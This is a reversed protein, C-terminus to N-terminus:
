IHILSLNWAVQVRDWRKDRDMAYYRGMVTAIKGVGIERCTEVTRAVLDAGSTPSVDRGDLFCHIYVKDLGQEKAMQVLAFLHSIHSHVGGNSMLGMIHLAKGGEKAADMANIYTKNEFFKGNKIEESIKPLIQFVVRGAGINTHGVESNGMQGDPLGVDMGSAGIETTPCTAFIKDLNPTNAAEIANGYTDANYGFGDMIILTLPKKM